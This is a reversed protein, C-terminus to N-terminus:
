KYNINCNKKHNWLGNCYNYQKLCINCSYHSTKQHLIHTVNSINKHKSTLIHRKWDGKKSSVFDCVECVFNSQINSTIKTVM